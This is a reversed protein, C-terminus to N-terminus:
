ITQMTIGSTDLVEIEALLTRFMILPQMITTLDDILNGDTPLGVAHPDERQRKFDSILNIGVTLADAVLEHHGPAEIKTNEVFNILDKITAKM